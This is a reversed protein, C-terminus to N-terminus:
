DHMVPTWPNTSLVTKQQKRNAQQQERTCDRSIWNECYVRMVCEHMADRRTPQKKGRSHCSINCREAGNGKTYRRGRKRKWRGPSRIVFESAPEARNTWPSFLVRSCSWGEQIRTLLRTSFARQLNEWADNRSPFCPFLRSFEYHNINCTFM